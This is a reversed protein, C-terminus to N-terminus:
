ALLGLYSAKPCLKLLEPWQVIFTDSFWYIVRGTLSVSRVRALSEVYVIRPRGRGTNLLYVCWCAVGLLAATGPGNCFLIAPEHKRATRYCAVFARVADPVAALLSQGVRRARPVAVVKAQPIAARARDPSLRDDAGHVFVIERKFRLQRLMALMEGTHGGSGLFIMAPGSKARKLAADRDTWGLVFPIAVIAALALVATIM